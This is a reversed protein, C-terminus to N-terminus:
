EFNKMYENLLSDLEKRTKEITEMEKNEIILEELLRLKKNIKEKLDEM